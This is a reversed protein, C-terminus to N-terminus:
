LPTVHTIDISVRVEVVPEDEDALTGRDAVVPEFTIRGSGGLRKSGGDVLHTDLVTAGGNVLVSRCGALAVSLARKKGRVDKLQFECIFRFVSRASAEYEELTDFGEDRIVCRGTAGQPWETPQDGYEVHLAGGTNGLVTGFYASGAKFATELATGLDSIFSM